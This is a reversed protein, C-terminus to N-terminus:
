FWLKWRRRLRPDLEERLSDAILSFGLTTTLILAGPTVGLWPAVRFLEVAYNSVAEYLMVGWDPSGPPLGLGLFNIASAELLVSGMDSIAQVLMPQLLNRIVHRGLIRFSSLGTLKALVVYEMEVISKAYVYAIRAYWAWWVLVLSVIVVHLGLGTSMRLLLAVIITPIAMFLEIFYNLVADVIGKFYAALVGITIGILLSLCIVLSVQLLATRTALLVRSLVDRGMHDTGLPHAFSPPQCGRLLTREDVYGYGELPYPAIYPALVAIVTLVGVVAVGVKFAKRRRARTFIRLTFSM